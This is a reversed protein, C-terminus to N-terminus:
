RGNIRGKVLGRYGSFVLTKMHASDLWCLERVGAIPRAQSQHTTTSRSYKEKNGFWTKTLTSYAYIPFHQGYSFVAYIVDVGEEEGPEDMTYQGFLNSGQFPLQQEVYQRCDKNSTRIPKAVKM